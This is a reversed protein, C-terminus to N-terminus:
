LRKLWVKGGQSIRIDVIAIDDSSINRMNMTYRTVIYTLFFGVLDFESSKTPKICIM